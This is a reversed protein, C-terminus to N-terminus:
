HAQAADVTISQAALPAPGAPLALALAAAVTAIDPCSRFRCFRLRCYRARPPRVQPHTAPSYFMGSPTALHPVSCGLCAVVGAIWGCGMICSAFWPLTGSM